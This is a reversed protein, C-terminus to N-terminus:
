PRDGNPSVPSPTRPDHRKRARAVWDRGDATIAELLRLAGTFESNDPVQGAGDQLIWEDLNEVTIALKEGNTLSLVFEQFLIFSSAASPPRDARDARDPAARPLIIERHGDDFRLGLETVRAAAIVDYRFETRRQNRAIGTPFDLTVTIQRVGDPTLLFMWVNYASFRPPGNRFRARRASPAAETLIAHAIIDRNGLGHQNMALRKLYIKDYDLWRVMEADDPRDSLLERRARYANSEAHTRAEARASNGRYTVRSWLLVDAGSLALLVGGVVFWGLVVLTLDPEAMLVKPFAYFATPGLLVAGPVLGFRRLVRRTERFEGAEWSRACEKAHWDILWDIAGPEIEPNCYLDTFEEALQSRIRRTAVNWGSRQWAAEPSRLAFTRDVTAHVQEEFEPDKPGPNQPKYASYRRPLYSPVSLALLGGGVLVLVGVTLAEKVSLVALLVVSLVFAAGVLLAGGAAATQRLEEASPERVPIPLPRAPEPEFFKWVRDARGDGTRTRRVIEAFRADLRDQITGTLILDLHRRIEERRALPLRDFRTFFDDIREPVDRGTQEQLRLCDVLELLADVAQHWDDAPGNEALRRAREIDGLEENGLLEFSRDGLVAVVWHYAIENALTSPPDPFGLQFVERILEEARRPMGGDICNKAVRWKKEPPDQGNVEYRVDGYVVGQVGIKAHDGAENRV